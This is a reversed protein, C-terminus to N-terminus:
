KNREIKVTKDILHLFGCETVVAFARTKSVPWKCFLVLARSKWRENHKDVWHYEQWSTINAVSTESEERHNM